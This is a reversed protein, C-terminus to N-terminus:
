KRLLGKERYSQITARNLCSAGGGADNWYDVASDISMGFLDVLMGPGSLGADILGHVATAFLQTPKIGQKQLWSRFSAICLGRNLMQGPFLFESHVSDRLRSHWHWNALWRDLATSVPPDIQIPGAGMDLSITEGDVSLHSRKLNVVVNPKVPYFMCILAIVSYRLDTPGEAAECFALFREKDAQNLMIKRTNTRTKRIPLDLKGFRSRSNMFKVFSALAACRKPYNTTYRDFHTQQVEDLSRSGQDHCFQMFNISLKLVQVISSPKKPSLGKGVKGARNQRETRGSLYAQYAHLSTLIWTIKVGDVITKVKLAHLYLDVDATHFDLGHMAALWTKISKFKMPHQDTGFAQVVNVATLQSRDYLNKDILRFGEANRKVLAYIRIPNTTIQPDDVYSQFLAKVWDQELSAETAAIISKTVGAAKCGYCRDTDPTDDLKGCKTCMDRLLTGRAFCKKCAPRGEVDGAILRKCRCVRCFSM